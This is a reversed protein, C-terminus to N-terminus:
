TSTPASGARGLVAFTSYEGLFLQGTTYGKGGSGSAAAWVAGPQATRALGVPRRPRVGAREARGTAGARARRRGM